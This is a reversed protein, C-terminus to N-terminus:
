RGLPVVLAAPALGERGPRVEDPAPRDKLRGRGRQPTPAEDVAPKSFHAATYGSNFRVHEVYQEAVVPGAIGGDGNAPFFQRLREKRIGNWDHYHQWQGLWLDHELFPAKLKCHVQDILSTKSNIYLVFWEGPVTADPQPFTVKLKDWREGDRGREAGVYEVEASEDALRFPLSFWFLSTVMDFRAMTLQSTSEISAGDSIIWTQEADIGFRVENPLGISDMRAQMGDHLPASFWGISDSSLLRRPDMITTMSIYSVDRVARWREWGGAADLARQLVKGAKGAPLHPRVTAATAAPPPDSSRCAALLTLAVVAAGARALWPKVFQPYPTTSPHTM